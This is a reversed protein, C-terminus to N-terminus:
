PAFSLHPNSDNLIRLFLINGISLRGESVFAMRGFVSTHEDLVFKSAAQPNQEAKLIEVHDHKSAMHKISRVQRVHYKSDDKIELHNVAPSIIFM